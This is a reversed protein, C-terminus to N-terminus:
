AGPQQTRVSEEDFGIVKVGNGFSVCFKLIYRNNTVTLVVINMPFVKEILGRTDGVLAYVLPQFPENPRTRLAERLAQESDLLTGDFAFPVSSLRFATDTEGKLFADLWKDVTEKAMDFRPNSVTAGAKNAIREAAKEVIPASPKQDDGTAACAALMYVVLMYCRVTTRRM